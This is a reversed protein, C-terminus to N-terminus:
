EPIHLVSLSGFLGPEPISINIIEGSDPHPFKVGVCWLYMNKADDELGHKKDGIIPFGFKKLHRSM